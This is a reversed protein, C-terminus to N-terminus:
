GDDKEGTPALAAAESSFTEAWSRNFWEPVLQRYPRHEGWAWVEMGPFLPVGDATKPLKAVIAALRANEATAESLAVALERADIVIDRVLSDRNGFWDMDHYDSIRARVREILTESPTPTM